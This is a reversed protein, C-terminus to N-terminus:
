SGSEEGKGARERGSGVEPEQWAGGPPAAAWLLRLILSWLLLQAGLLVLGAGVVPTLWHGLVIGSRLYMWLPRANIAVALGLLVLGLWGIGRVPRPRLLLRGWVSNRHPARRYFVAFLSNGYLGLFILNTGLVSLVVITAMRFIMWDPETGTELFLRVPEISLVIALGWLVTGALGLLKLPNYRTATGLIIALFRWGDVLASLKSEGEREHYPARVEVLNLGEHLARTSMAPTLHLGDPLENFWPLRSKRFVRQGSATDTLSISTLWSLLWAFLRNGLRRVAPMGTEPGLRSALVIDAERAHLARLLEPFVSPPNTGDADLFGVLDGKAAAVGTKLAAGYGLNRPHSILQVSEISEVIEATRDTSGDDVVLVELQLGEGVASLEERLALCDGLVGGISSEEDLAPIV